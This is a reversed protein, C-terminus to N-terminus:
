GEETRYYYNDREKQANEYKLLSHEGGITTHRLATRVCETRYKYKYTRTGPLALAADIFRQVKYEVSCEGPESVKGWERISILISCQGYLYPTFNWCSLAFYMFVM